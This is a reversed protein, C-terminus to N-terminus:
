LHEYSFQFDNNENEVFNWFTTKVSESMGLNIVHIRKTLMSCLLHLSLQEIIVEFHDMQIDNIFYGGYPILCTMPSLTCMTYITSFIVIMQVFLAVRRVHCIGERRIRTSCDENFLCCFTITFKVIVYVHLHSHKCVLQLIAFSEDVGAYVNRTPM